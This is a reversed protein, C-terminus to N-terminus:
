PMIGKVRLKLWYVGTRATVYLTSGDDGFCLNAPQEPFKIVQLVKGDPSYVRVGDSAAVWIRGTPDVRIGDAGPAEVTWLPAKAAKGDFDFKQLIGAGSDALYL